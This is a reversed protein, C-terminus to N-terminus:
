MWVFEQREKEEWKSKWQYATVTCGTENLDILNWHGCTKQGCSGSDLVIPLGSPRLDAISHRHTHGHLYLAIKPHRRILQELAEGRELIKSPDDQEFFPYHNLLIVKDMEPLKLLLTELKEELDETFRGRSSLAPGPFSTDLAVVWWNPGIPYAELGEKAPFYQYFRKEHYSRETYHDHNGPIAIMPIAIKQMLSKAKEFEEPMSSSTLDGGLLVFDVKLTKLLDPLDELQKESFIRRRHLLWNM